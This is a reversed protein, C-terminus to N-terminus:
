KKMTNYQYLMGRLMGKWRIERVERFDAGLHERLCARGREHPVEVVLHGGDVLVSRVSFEGGLERYADLGDDGKGFLAIKPDRTRSEFGPGRDYRKELHYPPNCIVCEFLTGVSALADFGCLKFSVRGQLNNRVSNLRSIELAPPSIDVGVGICLPLNHISSLLLVGSGCGADLIKRPNLSILTSVLSFSSACPRMVAPTVKFIIGGFTIDDDKGREEDKEFKREKLLLADFKSPRATEGVAVLEGRYDQVSLSSRSIFLGKGASCRRKAHGLPPFGNLTLEKIVSKLGRYHKIPAPPPTIQILYLMGDTNSRVKDLIVCDNLCPPGDDDDKEACVIATFTASLIFDMVAEIEKVDNCVVLLGDAARDLPAVIKPSKTKNGLLPTLIPLLAANLEQGIGAPKHILSLTRSSDVTVVKCKTTCQQIRKETSKPPSEPPPIILRIIDGESPRYKYSAVVKGNVQVHGKRILSNANSRSSLNFASLIYVDLQPHQGLRVKHVSSAEGPDKLLAFKVFTASLAFLLLGTNFRLYKGHDM